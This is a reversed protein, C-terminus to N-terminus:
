HFAARQEDITAAATRLRLRGGDGNGAAFKASNKASHKPQNADAGPPKGQERDILRPGFIQVSKDEFLYFLHRLTALIRSRPERFNAQFGRGMKLGALKKDERRRWEGTEARPRSIQDEDPRDFGQTCLPLKMEIEGRELLENNAILVIAFSDPTAPVCIARPCGPKKVFQPQALVEIVKVVRLRAIEHFYEPRLLYASALVAM